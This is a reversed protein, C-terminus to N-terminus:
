FQGLVGALTLMVGGAATLVSKAGVAGSADNTGGSSSLSAGCFLSKEMAYSLNLGDIMAQPCGTPTVCSSAWGSNAALSCFCAKQQPTLQSPDSVGSSPNVDVTSCAPVSKIARALCPECDPGVSINPLQAMVTSSAILVLLTLPLFTQFRM